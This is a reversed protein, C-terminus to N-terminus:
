ARGGRLADIELDALKERFAVRTMGKPLHGFLELYRFSGRLRRRAHPAPLRDVCRLRLGCVRRRPEKHLKVPVYGSQYM